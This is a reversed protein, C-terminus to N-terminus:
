HTYRQTIDARNHGTLCDWVNHRGLDECDQHKLHVSAGPTKMSIRCITLRSKSTRYSGLSTSMTSHIGPPPPAQVFPCVYPCHKVSSTAATAAPFTKCGQSHPCDSAASPDKPFTARESALFWNKYVHVATVHGGCARVSHMLMQCIHGGSFHRYWTATRGLPAAAAYLSDAGTLGSHSPPGKFCVCKAERSSWGPLPRLPVGSTVTGSWSPGWPGM